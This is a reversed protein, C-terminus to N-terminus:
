VGKLSAYAQEKRYKEACEQSFAIMRNMDKRYIEELGFKNGFVIDQKYRLLESQVFLFAKQHNKIRFAARKKDRGAIILSTSKYLPILGELRTVVVEAYVWLINEMSVLQLGAKGGIVAQSTVFLGECMAAKPIEDNIVRLQQPLFSKVNHRTRVSFIIWLSGFLIMIALMVLLMVCTLDFPFNDLFLTAFAAAFLLFSLFFVIKIKNMNKSYLRYLNKYEKLIKM